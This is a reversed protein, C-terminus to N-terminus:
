HKPMLTERNSPGACSFFYYACSLTLPGLPLFDLPPALGFLWISVPCFIDREVSMLLSFECPYPQMFCQRYLSLLLSFFTHSGFVVTIIMHRKLSSTSSLPLLWVMSCCRWRISTTATWHSLFCGSTRSIKWSTITIQPPLFDHM